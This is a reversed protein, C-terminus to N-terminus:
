KLEELLFLLRDNGKARRLLQAAEKKTALTQRISGIADNSKIFYDPNMWKSAQWSCEDERHANTWLLKKFAYWVHSDTPLTTELNFAAHFILSATKPGIEKFNLWTHFQRPVVGKLEVQIYKLINV